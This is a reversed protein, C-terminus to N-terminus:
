AGSEVSGPVRPLSRFPRRHLAPSFRRGVVGVATVTQAVALVSWGIEPRGTVGSVIMTAATVALTPGAATWWWRPSVGLPESAWRIQPLMMALHAAAYGCAVATVDGVWLGASLGCAVVAGNALGIRTLRSTRGMVSHVMLLPSVLSQLVVLPALIGIVDAAVDWGPGLVAAVMRHRFCWMSMMLTAATWGGLRILHVFQEVLDKPRNRMPSLTPLTAQNLATQIYGMPTMAFRYAISYCGLSAADLFGSILFYDINKSCFTAGSFGAVGAVYRLVHRLRAASPVAWKRPYAPAAAFLVIVAPAMVTVVLAPLAYGFGILGLGIPITVGAAAVDAVFLRSFLRARRAAAAALNSAIAIPIGLSLVTTVALGGGVGAMFGVAVLLYTLTAVGTSGAALIAVATANRRGLRRCCVVYTPLGFEGAVIALQYGALLLTWHGFGSQGLQRAALAMVVMATVQRCGRAALTWAAPGWLDTRRAAPQSAATM